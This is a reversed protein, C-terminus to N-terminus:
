NRQLSQFQSNLLAALGNIHASKSLLTFSQMDMRYRISKMKQPLIQCKPALKHTFIALKAALDHCMAAVCESLTDNSLGEGLLYKSLQILDM